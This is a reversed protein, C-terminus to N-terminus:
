QSVRKVRPALTASAGEDDTVVHLNGRRNDLGNRNRHFVNRHRPPGAVLRALLLCEGEPLYSVAYDYSRGDARVRKLWWDYVAVSPFDPVDV